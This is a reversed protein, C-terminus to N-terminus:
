TSEMTPQVRTRDSNPFLSSEAKICGAFIILGETLHGSGLSAVVLDCVSRSSHTVFHCYAYCELVAHRNSTCLVSLGCICFLM